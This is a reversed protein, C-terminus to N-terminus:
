MAATRSCRSMGSSTTCSTRNRSTVRRDRRGSSGTPSSGANPSTRSSCRMPVLGPVAVVAWGTVRHLHENLEEFDLIGPMSLRLINMGELFALAVRGLFRKLQRAFLLDWMAHDDPSYRDWEQPITWDPAAGPPPSSSATPM